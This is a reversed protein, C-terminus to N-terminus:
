FSHMVATSPIKLGKSRLFTSVEAPIEYCGDYSTVVGDVFFVLASGDEGRTVHEFYAEGNEWSAPVDILAYHKLIPSETTM